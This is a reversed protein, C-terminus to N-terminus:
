PLRRLAGGPPDGQDGVPVRERELVEVALAVTLIAMGALVITWRRM